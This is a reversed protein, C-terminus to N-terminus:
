GHRREESRYGDLQEALRFPCNDGHKIEEDDADWMAGCLPCEDFEAEKDMLRDILNHYITTAETEHYPRM